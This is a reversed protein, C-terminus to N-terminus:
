FDHDSNEVRADIDLMRCEFAYIQYLLIESPVAISIHIPM